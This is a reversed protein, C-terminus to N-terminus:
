NDEKSEEAQKNRRETYKKRLILLSDLTDYLDNIEDALDNVKKIRQNLQRYMSKASADESDFKAYCTVSKVFDLAMDSKEKALKREYKLAKITARIEALTGGTLESSIEMDNPHTKAIGVFKKGLHQMVVKTEGTEPDYSSTIFKM